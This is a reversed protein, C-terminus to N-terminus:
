QQAMHVFRNADDFEAVLKENTHALLMPPAIPNFPVSMPASVSPRFGLVATVRNPEEEVKLRYFQLYSIFAARADTVENQAVFRPFVQAIRRLPHMVSRKYAADKILMFLLGGPYGVRFFCAARAVGCAIAAMRGGNIQASLPLQPTHLEPVGEREGFARLDQASRLLRTPIGSGPNAWAWLWTHTEASETGLLQVSLQLPEQHPQVFALVGEDLAFSWRAKGLMAQLYLQKDYSAAGHQLFLRTLAATNADSSEDRTM